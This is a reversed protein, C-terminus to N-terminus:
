AGTHLFTDAADGGQQLSRLAHVSVQFTHTQSSSKPSIGCWRMLRGMESRHRAKQVSVAVTGPEINTIDEEDPITLKCTVLNTDVYEGRHDLVRWDGTPHLGEVLVAFKDGIRCAFSDVQEASMTRTADRDAGSVTCNYTGSGVNYSSVVMLVNANSDPIALSLLVGPRNYSPLPRLNVTVRGQLYGAGSAPDATIDQTYCITTLM